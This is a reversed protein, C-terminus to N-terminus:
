RGPQLIDVPPRYKREFEFGNGLVFAIVMALLVLIHTPYIRAMRLALFKLVARLSVDAAFRDFYVRAMTYGSLLFFLEMWLYGKELFQTYSAVEVAPNLAIRIHYAAILLAGIGRLSSVGDFTESVPARVVIGRAVPEKHDPGTANSSTM